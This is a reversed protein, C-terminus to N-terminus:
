RLRPSQDRRRAASDDDGAHALRAMHGALDDRCQGRGARGGMVDMRGFGAMAVEAHDPGLVHDEGQRPRAFGALKGVDDAIGLTKPHREDGDRRIRVEVRPWAASTQRASGLRASAQGFPRAGVVEVVM